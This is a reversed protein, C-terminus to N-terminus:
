LDARYIISWGPGEPWGEQELLPKQAEVNENANQAKLSSNQTLGTKSM